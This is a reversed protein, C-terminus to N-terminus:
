LYTMAAIEEEQVDEMTVDENMEDLAGEPNGV